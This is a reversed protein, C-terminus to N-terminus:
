ACSAPPGRALHISAPAAIVVSTLWPVFPEVRESGVLEIIVAVPAAAQSFHRCLSCDDHEDDESPVPQQPEDHHACDCRHGECVASTPAAHTHSHGLGGVVADLAHLAIALLAVFIHCRRRV